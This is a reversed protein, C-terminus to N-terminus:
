VKNNEVRMGSGEPALPTDEGASASSIQKEQEAKLARASGKDDSKPGSLAYTSCLGLPKAAPIDDPATSVPDKDPLVAVAVKKKDNEKKRERKKKRELRRKDVLRDQEQCPLCKIIQGEEGMTQHHYDQATCESPSSTPLQPNDENGSHIQTEGRQCDTSSRIQQPSIGTNDPNLLPIKQTLVPTFTAPPCPTVKSSKQQAERAERLRRDMNEQYKKLFVEM